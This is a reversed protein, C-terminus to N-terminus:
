VTAEVNATVLSGSSSVSSHITNHWAAHEVNTHVGPIVNTPLGLGLSTHIAEHAAEHGGAGVAITTPLGLGPLLAHIEQHYLRNANSRSKLSTLNTPLTM